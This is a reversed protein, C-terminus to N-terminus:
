LADEGDSDVSPPFLNSNCNPCTFKIKANSKIKADFWTAICIGHYVHECRTIKICQEGKQIDDVCITCQIQPNMEEECHFITVKDGMGMKINRMWLRNRLYPIKAISWYVCALLFTFFIFVAFALTVAINEEM